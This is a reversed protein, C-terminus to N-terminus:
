AELVAVIELTRPNVVVIQDGVLIFEYGRYDPYINVIEVPLPHFGVGRPVRTGVSISFNVNTVPKIGQKSISTRVTTRQESTLQKAGAGAQGTTTGAKSDTKADSASKANPAKSDLDKSEAANRNGKMGNESASKDQAAKGGKVDSEVAKSKMGGPQEQARQDGRGEHPAMKGGSMGEGGRASPEAQSAGGSPASQQTSSAGGQSQAFALTSAGILAASAVSILLHKKMM